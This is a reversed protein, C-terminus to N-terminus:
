PERSKRRVQRTFEIVEREATQLTSLVDNFDKEGWVEFDTFKRKAVRTATPSHLTALEMIHANPDSRVIGDPKEAAISWIAHIVRNRRKRAIRVKKLLDDLDDQKEKGLRELAASKLAADRATAGALGMYMAVGVQAETYLLAGLLLGLQLEIHASTTAIKCFLPM